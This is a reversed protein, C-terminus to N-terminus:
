QCFSERPATLLGLRVRCLGRQPDGRQSVVAGGQPVGFTAQDRVGQYHAQTKVDQPCNYEWVTLWNSLSIHFRTSLLEKKQLHPQANRVPNCRSTKRVVTEKHGRRGERVVEQSQRREEGLGELPVGDRNEVQQNQTHTRIAM